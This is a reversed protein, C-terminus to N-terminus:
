VIITQTQMTTDIWYLSAISGILLLISTIEFPFSWGLSSALYGGSFGLVSSGIIQSSFLLGFASGKSQTKDALYTSLQSYIMPYTASLAFGNVILVVIAVALNESLLAFALTSVCAVGYFLTVLRKRKVKKTMSGTLIAGFFAAFVWVAIMADSQSLSFSSSLLLNGFNSFVAYAGGSILMTLIFYIPLGLRSRNPPSGSPPEPEISVNKPTSSRTRMFFITLIVVVTDITAFVVFPGRWGLLSYLPASTLFVALVGVNGFASQFGMARDLHVGSYSRSVASVGVPHFFSSGVRLIIITTLMFLFSSSITFLLMSVAIIAIGAGLLKRPELSESYRGTIPQFIMNTLYGVAVLIGVEFNPFGFVSVVVPFLASILYTSGDNTLHNM